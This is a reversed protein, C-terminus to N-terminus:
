SSAPLDSNLGILIQAAIIIYQFLIFQFNRVYMCVCLCLEIALLALTTRSM